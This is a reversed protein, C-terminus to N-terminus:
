PTAGYYPQAMGALRGDFAPSTRDAPAGSTWTPVPTRADSATSKSAVMWQGSRWVLALTDLNWRQTPAISPSWATIEDWVRVEAARSSYEGLRDAAVAATLKLGPVSNPKAALAAALSPQALEPSRAQPLWDSDIITRLQSPSVLARNEAAVYNDAAAVAGGASHEVGVPVNRRLVVPDPRRGTPASVIGAALGAGALTVVGLLAALSRRPAPRTGTPVLIM